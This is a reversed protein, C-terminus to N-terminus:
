FASVSLNSENSVSNITLSISGSGAM